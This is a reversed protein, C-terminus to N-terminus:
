FFHIPKLWIFKDKQALAGKLIGNKKRWSFCSAISKIM